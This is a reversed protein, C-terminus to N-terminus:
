TAKLVFALAAAAVLAVIGILGLLPLPSATKPLTKSHGDSSAPQTSSPSSTPVSTSTSSTGTAPAASSASASTMTGGASSGSEATSGAGPQESESGSTAALAVRAAQRNSGQRNFWVTVRDGARLGAPMDTSADLAFSVTKGVLTSSAGATMGNASDVKLELRDSAISSITGTAEQSEGQSAPSTNSQGSQSVQPPSQTTPSTEQALLPSAALALGVAIM